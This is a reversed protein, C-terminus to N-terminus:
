HIRLRQWLHRGLSQVGEPAEFTWDGDPHRERYASPSCGYAQKFCRSFHFPTAFACASAIAGVPEATRALLQAGRGLRLLRLCAAPSTGVEAKFLRCLHERSVGSARPQGAPGLAPM